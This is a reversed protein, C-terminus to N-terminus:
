LSFDLDFFEGAESGGAAVTSSSSGQFKGWDGRLVPTLCGIRYHLTRMVAWPTLLGLSTVIAVANSLYLWLLHTAKLNSRFRLGGVRLGNWVLNGTGAQVYAFMIVYSTYTIFTALHGTRPIWITLVFLPIAFLAGFVGAVFYRRFFAGRTADFEGRRGGFSTNTVVFQRQDRIWAPFFLGALGAAAGMAAIFGPRDFSVIAALISFGVFLPIAPVKFAAVFAERYTGDFTPTMNRFSSYRANFAASRAIVWPLLLLGIGLVFPLAAVLLHESFYYILFLGSALLRGKLIPIPQATYQLPTGDLLTHSYFYRKKRVKAWASFVGLTLLTLSLNVVWVRFYDKPNGVFQLSLEREVPAASVASSVLEGQQPIEANM